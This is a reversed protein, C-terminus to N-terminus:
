GNGIGVSVLCRLVVFVQALHHRPGRVDDAQWEFWAGPFVKSLEWSANGDDHRKTRLEQQEDIVDAM